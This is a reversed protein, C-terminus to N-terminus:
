SKERARRKPAARGQGALKGKGPRRSKPKHVPQPPTKAMRRIVEDRRRAAEEPTFDDAPTPTPM